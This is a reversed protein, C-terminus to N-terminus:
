LITYFDETMDKDLWDKICEMCNEECEPAHNATFFTSKKCVPKFDNFMCSKLFYAMKDKNFSQINDFNTNQKIIYGIEHCVPCQKPWFNDQNIDVLYGYGLCNECEIQSM